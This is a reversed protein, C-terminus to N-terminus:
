PQVVVGHDDKVNYHENSGQAGKVCVFGNNGGDDFDDALGVHDRHVPQHPDSVGGDVPKRAPEGPHREVRDDQV